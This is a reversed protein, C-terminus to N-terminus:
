FVVLFCVTANCDRCYKLLVHAACRVDTLANAVLVGFGLWLAPNKTIQTSHFYTTIYNACAITFLEGLIQYYSVFSIKRFPKERSM